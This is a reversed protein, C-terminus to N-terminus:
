KNREERLLASNIRNPLLIHFRTGLGPRSAVKIQGGLKEVANKVIYLGIGSGDGQDTARYFMDFIRKLSTEKIGIGNDAFTIDACLNDVNIKIIIESDDADPRRYKIANSILNRFIESVRWYDSCFEVGEIKVSRKTQRAGKLYGLDKFTQEIIRELDVTGVTVEMNLNKSHSLVDGIFNDLAHIKEGILEMYEMPDDNNGQLRSLNVLGLV